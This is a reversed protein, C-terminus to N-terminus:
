KGKQTPLEHGLTMFGGFNVADTGHEKLKSQVIGARHGSRCYIYIKKKGAMKKFENYWNKDSKIKSLPFWKADKVMGDAIENQERVDVIVAKGEQAEKYVEKPNQAWLTLSFLCALLLMLKKM